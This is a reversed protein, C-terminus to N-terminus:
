KRREMEAGVCSFATLLADYEPIDDALCICRREDFAEQAWDPWRAVLRMIMEPSM